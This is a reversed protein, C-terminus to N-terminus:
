VARAREWTLGFRALYKRLRDADNTSARRRRSQSFLTRGAESLSPSTRCVELVDELQVRDFRDLEDAGAGLLAAVRSARPAGAENWAARLRAIEEDVVREDIRGGEALTAMRTVAANLERFNAPWRAEHSSAFRLFRESAERNFSVRRGHSSAFRDLEYRLNPELDERRQVLPPLHFTWLDLRSLLDERFRGGRVAAALDRNTGAVLQFDSSEERDAGVPLFRKEELARLLMAQEDLGLEGIEDLFLMGGDASKLLGARDHTAGTFAGRRHGFLASMAADGRLTACNLEVFAGKVLRRAAKLEHIRRALRSKGTGTAGTLLIPAGSALAVREIRAVLANFETNRTEIGCKLFTLADESERAHRKAIRDYRSLDLDIVQWSGPDGRHGKPPNSQLLRGPMRRSETLLFLCIQMVHSGTTIHVLYDEAETDFPYRDAFDSLGEFVSEFDWPSPFALEHRRVETEPSVSRVDEAVTKALGAIKPDFLLEFRSVLLDEHRFLDVSPRWRDWRAEAPASDLTQGLLGLVVLPKSPTDM